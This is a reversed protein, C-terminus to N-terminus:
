LNRNPLKRWSWNKCSPYPPEAVGLPYAPAIVVNGKTRLISQRSQPGEARRANGRLRM